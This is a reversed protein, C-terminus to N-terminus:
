FRNHIFFSSCVNRKLDEHQSLFVRITNFRCDAVLLPFLDPDDVVCDFGHEKLINLSRVENREDSWIKLAFSRSNFLYRFSKVTAGAHAIVLELIEPTKLSVSHILEHHIWANGELLVKANQLKHKRVAFELPSQGYQHTWTYM